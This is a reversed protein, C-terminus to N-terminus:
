LLHCGKNLSICLVILFMINICPKGSFRVSSENISGLYGLKITM